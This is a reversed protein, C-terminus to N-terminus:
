SSAKSDLRRDRGFLQSDKARVARRWDEVARTTDFIPADTGLMVRAEGLLAHAAAIGVPGLSASDVTVGALLRSRRAAANADDEQMRQLRELTSVFSGGGNAFQVTVGPFAALWGEQCLTLMALGIEHQPELGLHRHMRPRGLGEDRRRSDPLRGPHVFVRLQLQQALDFWPAMADAQDADCLSWAPLVFGELGLTAARRLESLATDVDDLPAVAMGRYRSGKVRVATADNFARSIALAEDTSLADLNWLPSWSLVQVDIGLSDLQQERHDLDHAAPDLPRPKIAAQFVWREEERWARPTENRRSLQELVGEPLWHAHHDILM